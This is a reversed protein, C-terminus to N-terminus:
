LPRDPAATPNEPEPEVAAGPKPRERLPLGPIRLMLMFGAALLALGFWLCQVIATSFSLRVVREQAAAAPSPPGADPHLSHAVAMQQLDGLDLHRVVAGPERPTLRDLQDALSATLMAGFMAVGITSGIQRVFQSSATAVGLQHIPTSNQVALSFLSQGPGLGVGIVVLRWGIDMPTSNPGIFTLLGVGGMVIVGGALMFPKYLGTRTVLLGTVTSSSILGLMLGLMTLGSLTAPVGLGVQMYLPLFTSMGMFAMSYVFSASNAAAFTRNAFLELPLIPDWVAREVVLFAILAAIALAFLGLIFPSTWAHAQGGWTIALLLPVFAIVILAAGLYDISGGGRVPVFPMKRAIMAVAALAFPVNVYFVWRWGEIVHGFLSVTGHDTFFGGIVPGLLSSFGFVAGTVGSLKARERPPYLDAIIAFTTTFLAGGGIGQLARFIILQTMGDGLLPLTGFEGALGCLWSGGLFVGIGALLVPKRGHIDGLKGWIPVSVTSTLLYATSAWAYLHLGALDAVIRPLATAIITQSMGSLLFVIIVSIFTLRRDDDSYVHPEHM